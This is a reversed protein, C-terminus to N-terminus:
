LQSYEEHMSTSVHVHWCLSAYGKRLTAPCTRVCVWEPQLEDSPGVVELNSWGSVWKEWIDCM